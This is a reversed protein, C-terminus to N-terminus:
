MDNVLQALRAHERKWLDWDIAKMQHTAVVLLMQKGCESIILQGKSHMLVAIRLEGLDAYTAQARRNLRWYDSSASAIDEMSQLAGAVHWPMGADVDVLACGLFDTRAAMETLADRLRQAKM